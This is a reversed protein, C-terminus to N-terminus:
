RSAARRHELPRGNQVAMRGTALIKYENHSRM